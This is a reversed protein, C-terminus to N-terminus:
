SLPQARFLSDLHTMTGVSKSPSTRTLVVHLRHPYRKHIDPMCLRMFTLKPLWAGSSSSSSPGGQLFAFSNRLCVETCRTRLEPRASGEGGRCGERRIKGSICVGPCVSYMVPGVTLIQQMLPHLTLFGQKLVYKTMSLSSSHQLKFTLFVPLLCYYLHCALVVMKNLRAGMSDRSSFIIIPTLNYVVAGQVFIDCGTHASQATPSGVASNRALITHNEAKM